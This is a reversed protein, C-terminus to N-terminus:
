SNKEIEIISKIDDKKDDKSYKVTVKDNVNLLILDENDAFNQKFCNGDKDKIYCITNGDVALFKIDAIDFTVKEVDSEDVKDINLGKGASSLAQKYSKLTDKLNDGTAVITYNKVNVMAYLKVLGNDDKLVMAYTPESNINILSPFSSKYGYNQVLGEAASMASYEEAGSVKYYKYKGTRTNVLIFGLNSEDSTTSTIGTYVYVDDNKVVFGYDDTTQKCGKQSFKSNMFGNSLKGYDNYLDEVIPGSYVYDVWEPVDKIDYLKSKGTVADLIIVESPTYAGFFTKNERCTVVWYPNGDEDIQFNYTEIMKTPYSMRIKRDLNKSFYGSPSYNLGKDLRVFEAENTKTNVLVYGPIGHSKNNFYKFFGDYELPAIKMVQDNYCITTYTDSIKYQSVVDSLSGIVRNGLKKASGTDMLPIKSIDDLVPIDKDFDGDEVEIRSSYTKARFVSGSVLQLIGFAAAIVVVLIILYKNVKIERHKFSSILSYLVIFVILNFLVFIWFSPNHINVAPLLVYFGTGCLVLVMILSILIAM